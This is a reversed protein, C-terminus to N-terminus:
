DKNEKKQALECSDCRGQTCFEKYLHLLGQQRCALNVQRDSLGLQSSM